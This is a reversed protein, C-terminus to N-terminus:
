ATQGGEKYENGFNKFIQDVYSAQGGNNGVGEKMVRCMPQM